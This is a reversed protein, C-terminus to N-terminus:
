PCKTPGALPGSFGSIYTSYDALDNDCDLDFDGIPRGSGDVVVGPPTNCCVDFSDIVGDDDSDPELSVNVQLYYPFDSGLSWTAGSDDSYEYNGLFGPGVFENSNAYSWFFTGDGPAESGLVFWYTTGPQLLVTRNPSFTRAAVPGSVDPATFTAILAGIEGGDDVHLEAIVVPAPETSGDGVIADVSVLTYTANDTVFSQTAWYWPTEEPTQVPNPNNGIPTSSRFPEALNSVLVDASALSCFATAALFLAFTLRYNRTKM